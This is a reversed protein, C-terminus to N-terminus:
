AATHCRFAVFNGTGASPSSIVNCFTRFPNFSTMSKTLLTTARSFEKVHWSPFYPSWEHRWTTSKPQKHPVPSAALWAEVSDMSLWPFWRRALPSTRPPNLALSRSNKSRSFAFIIWRRVKGSSQSDGDEVGIECLTVLPRYPIGHSQLLESAGANRDLVSIALLVNCGRQKVADIAKLISRGSTVVDDVIVVNCPGEPLPGEIQKKTGHEKAEKRVIFTPLPRKIRYSTCAVAGIIPTAGMDMGGVADVPMDAIEKLVSEAICAAGAPDMCTLKGDIYYTSTKGSSLVFMGHRLSKQKLLEALETYKNNTVTLFSLGDERSTALGESPAWATWLYDGSFIM